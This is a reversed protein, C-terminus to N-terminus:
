KGRGRMIVRLKGILVKERNHLYTLEQAHYAESGGCRCSQTHQRYWQYREGVRILRKAIIEVRESPTMQTIRERSKAFREKSMKSAHEVISRPELADIGM